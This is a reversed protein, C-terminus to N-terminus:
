EKHAANPEVVLIPTDLRAALSSYASAGQLFEGQLMVILAPADHSMRLTLAKVLSVLSAPPAAEVHFREVGRKTNDSLQKALNLASSEAQNSLVLIDGRELGHSPPAYLTAGPAEAAATKVTQFTHTQRLLPHAPQMLITMAHEPQARIRQVGPSLGSVDVDITLGMEQGLYTLNRRRRETGTDLSHEPTSIITRDQDEILLARCRSGFLKALQLASRDTAGDEFSLLCVLMSFHNEHIATM